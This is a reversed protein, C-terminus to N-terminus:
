VLKYCFLNYYKCTGKIELTNVNVQLLFFLFSEVVNFIVLVKSCGIFKGKPTMRSVKKTRKFILVMRVMLDM